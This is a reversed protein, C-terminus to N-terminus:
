LGKVDFSSISKLYAADAFSVRAAGDAGFTILKGSVAVITKGARAKSVVLFKGDGRGNKEDACPEAKAAAKAEVVPAAPNTKAAKPEAAAPKAGASNAAAM